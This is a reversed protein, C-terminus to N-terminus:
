KFTYIISFDDRVIHSGLLGQNFLSEMPIVTKFLGFWDHRSFEWNNPRLLTEDEKAALIADEITSFKELVIKNKGIYTDHTKWLPIAKYYTYM